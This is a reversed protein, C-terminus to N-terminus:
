PEETSSARVRPGDLPNRALRATRDVPEAEGALVVLADAREIVVEAPSRLRVFRKRRLKTMTRCVTEVSLGLHDAIDIRPMPLSVVLGPRPEGSLRRAMTVLFRALREEASQHLLELLQVQATCIERGVRAMVAARVAPTGAMLGELASRPARRVHTDIVAEATYLHGESSCLGALEGPGVFRAVARRGDLLNRQLRIMGTEIRFLHEAEDGEWFAARGAALSELTRRAFLADIDAETEGEGLPRVIPCHDAKLVYM